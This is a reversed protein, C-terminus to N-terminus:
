PKSSTTKDHHSTKEWSKWIFFGAILAVFLLFGLFLLGLIIAVLFFDDQSETEENITEIPQLPNESNNEVPFLTTEELDETTGGQQLEEPYSVQSETILLPTDFVNIDWCWGNGESYTDWHDTGRGLWFFFKKYAGWYNSGLEVSEVQSGVKIFGENKLADVWLEVEYDKGFEVPIFETYKTAYKQTGEGPYFAGRVGVEEVFDLDWSCQMYVKKGDESELGFGPKTAYYEPTAYDIRWSFSTEPQDTNIVPLPKEVFVHVRYPSRTAKWEIKGTVQDPKVWNYYTSNGQLALAWATSTL